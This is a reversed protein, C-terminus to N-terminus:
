QACTTLPRGASCATATSVAVVIERAPLEIPRLVGGEGPVLREERADIGFRGPHRDHGHRRVDGFDLRPDTGAL